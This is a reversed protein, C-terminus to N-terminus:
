LCPQSTVDVRRSFPDPLADVDEKYKQIMPFLVERAEAHISELRQVLLAETRSLGNAVPAPSPKEVPSSPKPTSHRDGLMLIKADAKIKYKSLAASLDKM